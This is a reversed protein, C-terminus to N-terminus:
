GVRKVAACVCLLLLQSALACCAGSCEGPDAEELTRACVANFWRTLPALAARQKPGAGAVAARFEEYDLRDGRQCGAFLCGLAADIAAADDPAYIIDLLRRLQLM